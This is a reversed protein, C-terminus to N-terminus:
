PAFTPNRPSEKASPLDPPYEVVCDEGYCDAGHTAPFTAIPTVPKVNYSKQAAKLSPPMGKM